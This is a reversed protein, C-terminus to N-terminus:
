KGLVIMKTHLFLDGDPHSGQCTYTQNHMTDDIDLDLWTSNSVNGGLVEGSYLWEVETVDGPFMCFFQVTEGVSYM